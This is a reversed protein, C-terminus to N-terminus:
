EVGLGVAAASHARHLPQREQQEQPLQSVYKGSDMKIHFAAPAGLTMDRPKLQQRAEADPEDDSDQEAAEKIEEKSCVLVESLATSITPRAVSSPDVATPAAGTRIGLGRAPSSTWGQGDASGSSSSSASSVLNSSASHQRQHHQYLHQQGPHSSLSPQQRPTASSGSSNFMPSTQRSSSNSQVSGAPHYQYLPHQQDLSSMTSISCSLTGSSVGYSGLSSNPRPGDLSRRNFGYNLNSGSGSAVHLSAGNNIMSPSNLSMASSSSSSASRLHHRQDLLSSTTYSGSGVLTPGTTTTAMPRRGDAPSGTRTTVISGTLPSALSIIEPASQRAVFQFHQQSFSPSPTGNLSSYSSSQGPQSKLASSRWSSSLEYSQQRPLQVQVPPIRVIPVATRKPGQLQVPPAEEDSVVVTKATSSEDLTAVQVQTTASRTRSLVPSMAPSSETSQPRPTSPNSGSNSEKGLDNFVFPVNAMSIAPSRARTHSSSSRALNAIAPLNRATPSTPTSNGTMFLDRSLGTLTQGADDESRVESKDEESTDDEEEQTAETVTTTTITAHNRTAEATVTTKCFATSPASPSLALKPLSLRISSQRSASGKTLSRVSGEASSSASSSPSLPAAAESNSVHVSKSRSRGTAGASQPPSALQASTTLSELLANSNSPSFTSPTTPTSISSTTTSSPSTRIRGPSNLGRRSVRKKISAEPTQPVGDNATAATSTSAPILQPSESVQSPSTSFATAHSPLATLSRTGWSSELLVPSGPESKEGRMSSGAGRGNAMGSGSAGGPSNLLVTTMSNARLMPFPTSMLSNSRSSNSSRSTMGPGLRPSTAPSSHNSSGSFTTRSRQGSGSGSGGGSYFQSSGGPGTYSSSYGSSALAGAVILSMPRARASSSLSTSSTNQGSMPPTKPPPLMIQPKVVLQPTLNPSQLPLITPRGMTERGQELSIRHLHQQSHHAHQIYMPSQGSSVSHRQPVPHPLQPAQQLQQSTRRVYGSPPLENSSSGNPSTPALPSSTGSVFRPGIHPSRSWSGNGGDGFNSQVEEDLAVRRYRDDFNMSTSRAHRQQYQQQVIDSHHRTALPPRTLQQSSETVPPETLTPPDESEPTSAVLGFSPTTCSGMNKPPSFGWGTHSPTGWPMIQVEESNRKNDIDISKRLNNHPAMTTEPVHITAVGQGRDQNLLTLPDTKLFEVSAEFTVLAFDMDSKPSNIRFRQLYFINSGIRMLRAQIIVIALLPIFDDTTVSVDPRRKQVFGATQGNVLHDEAVNSIMDLAQKICYVKELPTNWVEPGSEDEDESDDKVAPATAVNSSSRASSVGKSSHHDKVFVRLSERLQRRKREQETETTLASASSKLSSLAPTQFDQDWARFMAAIGETALDFRLTRLKESLGLKKLTEQLLPSNDSSALCRDVEMGRHYGNGFLYQHYRLIIDNVEVDRQAYCPVLSHIFLKQYLKGLVVNEMLEAFCDQEAQVGKLIMKQLKVSDGLCDRYAKEYILRLKDLTYASFGRIYVYTNEFEQCLHNFDRLARSLEPFAELFALDSAFGRVAPMIPGDLPRTQVVGDGELPKDLILVRTPKQSSGNYVTEESLIQVSRPHAFGSIERVFSKDIEVVKHDLTLFQGRFYPSPTLIHTDVFTKHFILGGLSRERPVCIVNGPQFCNFALIPQHRNHNHGSATNHVPSASGSVGHRGLSPLFSPSSSYDSGSPSNNMTSRNNILFPSGAGSKRGGHDHGAGPVKHKAQLLSHQSRLWGPEQQVQHREQMRQLHVYFSNEDLEVDQEDLYSASNQSAADTATNAGRTTSGATITSSISQAPTRKSRRGPTKTTYASATSLAKKPVTNSQSLVKSSSSPTIDFYSPASIPSILQAFLENPEHPGDLGNLGLGVAPTTPLSPGQVIPWNLQTPKYRSGDNDSAPSPCSASFASSSSASAPSSSSQATGATSGDTRPTTIETSDDAGEGGSSGNGQDVLRHKDTTSSATTSSRSKSRDQDFYEGVSGNLRPNHGSSDTSSQNQRPLHQQQRHSHTPQRQQNQSRSETAFAMEEESLFRGQMDKLPPLSSHHLTSALANNINGNHIAIRELASHQHHPQQQQQHQQQRPLSPSSTTTITASARRSEARPSTRSSCVPSSHVSSTSRRQQPLVKRTIGKGLARDEEDDDEEAITQHRGTTSRPSSGSLSSPSQPHSSPQKSGSGRWLYSWAASLSNSRNRPEHAENRAM